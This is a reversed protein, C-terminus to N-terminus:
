FKHDNSDISNALSVFHHNRFPIRLPFLIIISFLSIISFELFFLFRKLFNRPHTPNQLKQLYSNICSPSMLVSFDKFSTKFVQPNTRFGYSISWISVIVHTYQYDDVFLKYFIDCIDYKSASLSNIALNPREEQHTWIWIWYTFWSDRHIIHPIVHLMDFYLLVAYNSFM